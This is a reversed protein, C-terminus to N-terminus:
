DGGEKTNNDEVMSNIEITHENEEDQNCLDCVDIIEQATLGIAENAAREWPIKEYYFKMREYPDKFLKKNAKDKFIDRMHQSEDMSKTFTDICKGDFTSYHIIHGLEHKIFIPIYKTMYDELHSLNDFMQIRLRDINIEIYYDELHIIGDDDYTGSYNARMDMHRDYDDNCLKEEIWKHTWHGKRRTINSYLWAGETVFWIKIPLDIDKVLNDIIDTINALPSGKYKIIM